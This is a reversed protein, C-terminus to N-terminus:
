MVSPYRCSEGTRSILDSASLERPGNKGYKKRVSVGAPPTAQGAPTTFAHRNM